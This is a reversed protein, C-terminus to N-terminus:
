TELHIDITCVESMDLGPQEGIQGWSPHEGEQDKRMEKEGLGDDARKM